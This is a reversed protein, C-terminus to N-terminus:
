NFRFFGVQEGTYDALYYDLARDLERPSFQDLISLLVEEESLRDLLEPSVQKVTTILRDLDKSM